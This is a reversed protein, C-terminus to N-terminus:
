SFSIGEAGEIILSASAPPAAVASSSDEATVRGLVVGVVVAVVVALVAVAQVWLHSEKKVAAKQAFPDAAPGRRYRVSITNDPLDNIEVIQWGDLELTERDSALADRDAYGVVIVRLDAGCRACILASEPHTLDCRPCRIMVHPGAAAM